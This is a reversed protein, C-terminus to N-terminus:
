QNVAGKQKLYLAIHTNCYNTEGNIVESIKFNVKFKQDLQKAVHVFIEPCFFVYKTACFFKLILYFHKGDNKFPKWQLLYFWIKQFAPTPRLFCKMSFGLVVKVFESSRTQHEMPYKIQFVLQKAIWTSSIHLENTKSKKENSYVFLFFVRKKKSTCPAVVMSSCFIDLINWLIQTLQPKLSAINITVKHKYNYEWYNFEGKIEDLKQSKLSFHITRSLRLLTELTYDTPTHATEKESQILRKIQWNGM